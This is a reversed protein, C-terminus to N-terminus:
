DEMSLAMELSGEPEFKCGNVCFNHAILIAKQYYILLGEPLYNGMFIPLSVIGKLKKSKVWLM